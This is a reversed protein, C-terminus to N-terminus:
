GIVKDGPICFNFADVYRDFLMAEKEDRTYVRYGNPLTKKYYTGDQRILSYTNM